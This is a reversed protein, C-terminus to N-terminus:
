RPDRSLQVRRGLDHYFQEQKTDGTREYLRALHQYMMPNSPDLEISKRAAGIAKETENLRSLLWSYRGWAIGSYPQIELYKELAKRGSDIDGKNLRLTAVTSLTLERDPDIALVAHWHTLADQLSGNVAEAVALANLVEVDNPRQSLVADLMRSAQAALQPNSTREVREALWIGRAREVLVQPLRQDAGGYPEPLEQWQDSQPVMAQPVRLVRHDSQTTHPVDSANLRPMHCAICSDDPQRSRRDSEAVACGQDAHCNLCRERYYAVRNDPPPQSHPDHCSTCGLKGESSTYCKSTRMQEVQSVARTKGDATTRNGRVLILYTEELRSGPQFDGFQCGDRLYRGEGSLHCQSCVDERRHPDLKAPNVIPDSAFSAAQQRHFQIHDAGPGHCRECGIAVEHFPPVGFVDARDTLNMRGSHCEMCAAPVRRDFRRHLPLTYGPSLDWKGARSYWGIPSMFLMGDRNFLYSRGQLGSGVVCDIKVAQDYLTQGAEDTLREHHFVGETTRVVSYHHRGDPSFSNQQDYDELPTESGIPWLSQGMGTAHYSAAIEAHCEACSASGAFRVPSPVRTAPTGTDSLNDATPPESGVYRLSGAYGVAVVITVAILLVAFRSRPIRLLSSM